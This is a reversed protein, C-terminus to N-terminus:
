STTPRARPRAASSRWAASSSSSIASAVGSCCLLRASNASNFFCRAASSSVFTASASLGESGKKTVINIVGGLGGAGYLLSATGYSVKIKAINEVPVIAPDFQGDFTSALPAGNLLLRVHRSRFGRVNVRAIGDTGTRIDVGPLLELARDLTRVRRREIDEASIERVTGAAEVGAADGFVVVEGLEFTDADGTTASLLLAAISVGLRCPAIRFSM